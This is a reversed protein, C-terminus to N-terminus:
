GLGAAVKDVGVSWRSRCLADERRLGVKVSEEVVHRKWTRKPGGFYHCSSFSLFRASDVGLYPVVCLKRCLHKWDFHLWVM